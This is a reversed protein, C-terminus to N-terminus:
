KLYIILGKVIGQVIKNQYEESNLLVDEEPNTMFGMEVLIVPVKSWNFGTLDNRESIGRSKGGTSKVLEDLVNKAATKSKKLLELDKIYQNGPYLVSIGNVSSNDFGDAHIRVAIDASERNAIEAREINGLDVDNGERTMIVRAGQKILEDRIKISVAMTLKYEPVKTSVGTTGYATAPKLTGDSPAIPENKIEHNPNGHGADICITKGALLQVSPTKFQEAKSSDDENTSSKTVEPAPASNVAKNDMVGMSENVESVTIEPIAETNKIVYNNSKTCGTFFIIILFAVGLIRIKM